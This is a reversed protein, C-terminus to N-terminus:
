ISCSQSLFGAFCLKLTRLIMVDESRSLAIIRLFLVLNLDILSTSYRFFTNIVGSM